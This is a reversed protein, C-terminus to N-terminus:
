ARRKVAQADLEAEFKEVSWGANLAEVVLQQQTKPVMGGVPPDTDLNTPFSYGRAAVAIAANIQSASLDSNLLVPYVLKLLREHNVEEMPVGFASSIQLLNATRVHDKTTNRGAAHFLAPNFFLGDGKNLPLQVYNEAFYNVFEPRRYAIYGLEYQHSWPLLQTPGSALPMDTHAIAGQLTLYQSLIQVPVPFGVAFSSQQFGLHYDRHPQQAEGGPSVQNVQSTMRWAPGLWAQCILGLLPNAYYDRFVEPSAEAMKQLANWIRGNSGAKSFHDAHVKSKAEDQMITEFVQSARDIVETDAYLNRILFVGPGYSLAQHLENLVARKNTQVANELVARDYILVESVVESALPFADTEVRQECFERLDDVSAEEEAVFYQSTM